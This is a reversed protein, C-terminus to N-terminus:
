QSCHVVYTSYADNLLRQSIKKGIAVKSYNTRICIIRVIFVTEVDDNKEESSHIYNLFLAFYSLMEAINKGGQQIQFLNLYM